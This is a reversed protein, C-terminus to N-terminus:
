QLPSFPAPLMIKNEQRLNLQRGKPPWVGTEIGKARTEARHQLSEYPWIHIFRNLMGHESVLALLLPSLKVREPLAAKWREFLDQKGGPEMTYIRMEYIPGLKGTVLEPCSPTPVFIESQADAVLDATAPPWNPDKDAAERIAQREAVSEYPWIHVLQNLPGIDTYWFGAAKSYKARHEYLDGIREMLEPLKGPKANYTRVEYIM